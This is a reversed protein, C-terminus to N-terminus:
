PRLPAIQSYVARFKVEPDFPISDVLKLEVDIDESVLKKMEKILTRQSEPVFREDPEVVLLLHDFRDQLVQWARVGPVAMFIWSIPQPSVKRGSRLIIAEDNRGQINEILPLSRGCVPRKKSLVVRDGQRYRIFPMAWAQLNTIVVEGEEGPAVSKGQDLIEVIVADINLHYIGCAECEWALCGGEFSYYYDFVKGGFVSMMYSRSVDDLMEASSFVLKPRLRRTGRREAYEALLRLTSMRGVLVQPNWREFISLWEDPGQFSSLEKRRWLGLYEYWSRRENVERPLVIVGIKHWPKLGAAMNSRASLLNRITFDRLSIQLELPRGTSGSTRLRRCRHLPINQACTEDFPLEQLKKKETIPILRLDEIRNIEEPRIKHADFLKRYYPVQQYAHRVLRRLKREQLKRLSEPDKWQARCLRWFDYVQNPYM